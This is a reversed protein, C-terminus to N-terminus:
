SQDVARCGAALSIERAKNIVTSANTKLQTLPRRGSTAVPLEKLSMIREPDFQGAVTLVVVMLKPRVNISM